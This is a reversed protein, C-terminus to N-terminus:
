GHDAVKLMEGPKNPNGGVLFDYFKEAAKVVKEIELIRDLAMVTSEAAMSTASKLNRIQEELEASPALKEWAKRADANAVRRPYMKWFGEFGQM